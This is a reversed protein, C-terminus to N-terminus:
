SWFPTLAAATWCEMLQCTLSFTSLSCSDNVEIFFGGLAKGLVLSLPSYPESTPTLLGSSPPIACLGSGPKHAKVMMFLMVCSASFCWPDCPLAQELSGGPVGNGLLCRRCLLESRSARGSQLPLWPQM